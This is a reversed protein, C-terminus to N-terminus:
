QQQQSKATLHKGAMALMGAITAMWKTISIAATTPM